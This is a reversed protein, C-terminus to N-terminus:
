AINAVMIMQDENQTLQAYKFEYLKNDIQKSLLLDGNLSYVLTSLRDTNKILIFIYGHLSLKLSPVQINPQSLKEINIVCWIRSTRLCRLMITGDASATVYM